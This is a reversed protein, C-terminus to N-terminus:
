SGARNGAHRKVWALVALRLASSLNSDRPRFEDIQAVLTALTIGRERAMEALEDFFETELSFSTRHGRISVSRKTVGSM